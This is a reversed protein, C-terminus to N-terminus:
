KAAWFEQDSERTAKPVYSQRPDVRFRNAESSIIAERGAKELAGKEEDTAQAWTNM